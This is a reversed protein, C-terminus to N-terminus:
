RWLKLVVSTLPNFDYSARTSVHTTMDKNRDLCLAEKLDPFLIMGPVEYDCWTSRGHTSCAGGIGDKKALTDYQCTTMAHHKFAYPCGQRKLREV